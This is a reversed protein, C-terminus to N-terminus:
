RTAETYFCLFFDVSTTMRCLGDKCIFQKSLVKINKKKMHYIQIIFCLTCIKMGEEFPPLFVAFGRAV